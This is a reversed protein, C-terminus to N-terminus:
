QIKAKQVLVGKFCDWYGWAMVDMLVVIVLAMPLGSTDLFLHALFIHIVIPALILMGLPVYINFLFMLGVLVQTGKLFPIFYETSKLGSMYAMMAENPEPMPLFHLFGNLGFVTFMVGLVYQSFLTAKLKM